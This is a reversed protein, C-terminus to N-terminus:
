LVGARDAVQQLSLSARQLALRAPHRQQQRQKVLQLGWGRWPAGVKREPRLQAAQLVWHEPWLLLAPAEQLARAHRLSHLLIQGADAALVIGDHQGEHFGMRIEEAGLNVGQFEVM